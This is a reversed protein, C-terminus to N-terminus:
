SLYAVANAVVIAASGGLTVPHFRGIVRRDYCWLSALLALWSGFLFSLFLREDLVPDISVPLFPGFLPDYVRALVPEALAFTGVLLLRKHWDPRRRGAFAWVACVVFVPLLLRNALVEPTMAAWGRFKSAFLYLTTLAMGAAAAFGWPGIRRHLDIKGSYALWSQASLLIVWVAAFLGHIVMQPDSNSPQHIDTFLNDAFAVFSLVVFLLTILPFYLAGARRGPQLAARTSM